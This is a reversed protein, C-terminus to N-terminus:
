FKATAMCSHRSNRGGEAKDTQSPRVHGGINIVAKMIELRSDVMGINFLDTLWFLPDQPRQSAEIVVYCILFQIGGFHMLDLGVLKKRLDKEAAALGVETSKEEGVLFLVDMVWLWADPVGGSLQVLLPVTEGRQSRLM